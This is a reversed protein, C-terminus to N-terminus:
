LGVFIMDDHGKEKQYMNLKRKQGREDGQLKNLGMNEAAM